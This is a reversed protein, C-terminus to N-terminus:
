ESLFDGWRQEKMHNEFEDMHSQYSKHAQVSGSALVDLLRQVFQEPGFQDRHKLLLEAGCDWLTFLEYLCLLKAIRAPTATFNWQAEYHPASLDRLYLADAWMVQGGHTQAPINHVFRGPLEQRTYSHPELRFLTFGQSRMFRDINCFLNAQDHVVGHFQCEVSVGLVGKERLTEVASLLVPYDHGDTDIKIFDVVQMNERDVFADLSFTEESLNTAQGSNHINAVYDFQSLKRAATASARDLPKNHKSALVDDAYNPDILTHYDPHTVFGAHYSVNRPATASLREIEEVLPDIGYARLTDGFAFWYPALGGSVGVDILTFGAPSMLSARSLVETIPARFIPMDATM